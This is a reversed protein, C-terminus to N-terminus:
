ITDYINQHDKLYLFLDRPLKYRKGDEFNYVASGYYMTWTGKVRATVFASEVVIEEQVEEVEDTDDDEIFAAAIKKSAM